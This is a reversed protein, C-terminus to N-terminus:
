LSAFQKRLPTKPSKVDLAIVTASSDAVARVVAEGIGGGAGTVIVIEKGHNWTDSTFNNLMRHSFYNNAWRMVGLGFLVKLTSLGAKSILHSFLQHAKTPLIEHLKKPFYVLGFLIPGTLLPNLLTGQVHSYWFELTLGERPLYRHSPM